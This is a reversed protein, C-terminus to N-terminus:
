SFIRTTEDHVTQVAAEDLRGAPDRQACYTAVTVHAAGAAAEVYSLGAAELRAMHRAMNLLLRPHAKRVFLGGDDFQNRNIVEELAELQDAVRAADTSLCRGADEYLARKIAPDPTEVDVVIEFRGLLAADFGQAAQAYQNGVNTTAVLSLHECPAAIKEGTPLEAVYHRGTGTAAIGRARLEEPSAPDLLGVLAGLFISEFRLIEDILLMTPGAEAKRFAETVPGDVWTPGSATPTVGGFFDRDELGPRGKVVTMAAGAALAARAATTTKFTGTPGILLATGGTRIVAEISAQLGDATRVAPTAAPRRVGLVKKLLEDDSPYADGGTDHFTIAGSENAEKLGFYIADTVAMMAHRAPTSQGDARVLEDKTYPLQDGLVLVLEELLTQWREYVEAFLTGESAVAKVVCLLPAAKMADVGHWHVSRGAHGAFARRTGGSNSTYEVSVNKHKTAHRGITVGGTLLHSLAEVLGLGLNSNRGKQARASKLDTPITQSKQLSPWYECEKLGFAYRTYKLAM